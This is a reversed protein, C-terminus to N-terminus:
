FRLNWINNKVFNDIKKIGQKSDFREIIKGQKTVIIVPVYSVDTKKFFKKLENSKNKKFEDTNYYYINIFRKKALQELKPQFEVCVGCTPRGIYVLNLKDSKSINEFSNNDISKLNGWIYFPSILIVLVVLLLLIKYRNFFNIRAM